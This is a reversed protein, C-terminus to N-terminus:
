VLSGFTFTGPVTTFAGSTEDTISINSWQIYTLVETQGAPCSFDNTSVSPATITLEGNINGNRDATFQGSASSSGSLTEKNSAQPHKSGGNFCAFQATWDASATVTEVSGSSLGAEKFTVTLSSGSASASAKVFHPNGNAAQAPGISLIITGLAVAVMTLIRHLIRM